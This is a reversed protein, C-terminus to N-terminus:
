DRINEIIEEVVRLASDGIEEAGQKLKELDEEMDNEMYYEIKERLKDLDEKLEKNYIDEVKDKERYVNYQIILSAIKLEETATLEDEFRDHWEESFKRFREDAYQWDSKTYQAHDEKVRKVFQSFRDLYADKNRPAMCSTAVALVVPLLAHVMWKNSTLKM